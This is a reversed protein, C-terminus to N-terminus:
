DWRVMQPKATQRNYMVDHLLINSAGRGAPGAKNQAGADSPHTRAHANTNTHPTFSARTRAHTRMRTRAHSSCAPCTAFVVSACGGACFTKRRGLLLCVESYFSEGSIPDVVKNETTRGAPMGAPIPTGDEALGMSSNRGGATAQLLIFPLLHRLLAHRCHRDMKRRNCLLVVQM